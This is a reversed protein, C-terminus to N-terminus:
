GWNSTCSPGFVCHAGCWCCTDIIPSSKEVMSIGGTVNNKEVNSLKEFQELLLAKKQM